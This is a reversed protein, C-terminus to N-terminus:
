LLETVKFYVNATV